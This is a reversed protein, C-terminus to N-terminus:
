FFTLAFMPAVARPQSDAEGFCEGPRPLARSAKGRQERPTLITVKVDCSGPRPFRIDAVTARSVNQEHSKSRGRLEGEAPRNMTMFCMCRSVSVSGRGRFGSVSGRRLQTRLSCHVFPAAGGNCLPQSTRVRRCIDEGM